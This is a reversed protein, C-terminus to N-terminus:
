KSNRSVVGGIDAAMQVLSKLEEESLLPLVEAAKRRSLKGFKVLVKIAEENEPKAWKVYKRFKTKIGHLYFDFQMKKDASAWFRNMENAYFITDPFYSLSRNVLFSNYEKENDKNVVPEKTKFIAPIVDKFTELTM